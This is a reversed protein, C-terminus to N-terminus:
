HDCLSQHGSEGFVKDIELYYVGDLAVFALKKGDPSLTPSRVDNMNPIEIDCTGDLKILHLSSKPSGTMVKNYAIFEGTPSWTPAYNLENETLQVMVLTRIDIVYLNRADSDGLFFVLNQSDPSWSFGFFEQM